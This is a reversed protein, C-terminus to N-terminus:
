LLGCGLFVASVSAVIPLLSWHGQGPLPLVMAAVAAGASASTGPLEAAFARMASRKAGAANQPQRVSAGGAKGASFAAKAAIFAKQSAVAAGAAPGVARAAAPHM